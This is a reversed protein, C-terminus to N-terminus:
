AYIRVFGSSIENRKSGPTELYARECAIIPQEFNMTDSVFLLNAM